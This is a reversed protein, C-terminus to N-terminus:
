DQRREVPVLLWFIHCVEALTLRESGGYFPGEGGLLLPEVETAIGDVMKEAVADREEESPPMIGAFVNPIVKGAFADVFLSLRARYM